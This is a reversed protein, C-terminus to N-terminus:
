DLYGLEELERTVDDRPRSRTSDARSPIASKTWAELASVLSADLAPDFRDATEDPDARLDYARYRPGEPTPVRILKREGAVAATWRGELGPVELWPCDYRQRLPASAAFLMRAPRDADSVNDDFPLATGDLEGPCEFRALTCLTPLVDILSVPAASRGPVLGPAKVLFPVRLLEDYVTFDHAFHLGHEGLSEGHDALLVVITHDGVAAIVPALAKDIKSVAADYALTAARIEAPEYPARFFLRSREDPGAAFDRGIASEGLADGYPMHADMFHLWLLLPRERAERLIALGEAVVEEASMRARSGGRTKGSSFRDFGRAFGSHENTLWPNTVVAATEYGARRALEALTPADPSLRDQRSHSGIGVSHPYLGTMVAAMAPLTFPAPSRANAFVRAGNALEDLSPTLDRPGGVRDARVTDLTLLLVTPQSTSAGNEGVCSPNVVLALMLIGCRIMKAGSRPGGTRGEGLAASRAFSPESFPESRVSKMTNDSM